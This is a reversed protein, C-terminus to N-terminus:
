SNFIICCYNELKYEGVKYEAHLVDTQRYQLLLTVESTQNIPIYLLRWKNSTIPLYFIFSVFTHQTLSDTIKILFMYFVDSTRWFVKRMCCLLVAANICSIILFHMKLCSLFSCHEKKSCDTSFVFLKLVLVWTLYYELQLLVFILEYLVRQQWMTKSSM